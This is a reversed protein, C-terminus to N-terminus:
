TLRHRVWWLCLAALALAMAVFLAMEYWQFAWYRSAPQYTVLQRLGFHHACSAFLTQVSAGRPTGPPPVKLGPCAGVGPISATGKLSVQLGLQGRPGIGGNQGIVHGSKNITTQSLIWSGPQIVGAGPTPAPGNGVPLVLPSTVGLPTELRPRIWYTVALRAGLFGVITVAMAPLTRRILVGAFVGLMFAFAAYGIPTIGRVGFMAPSFRNINVRDFPSFWWSLILSLLGTVVMSILGVLGLKVALWRARPVSQSWSLKYSGTELERAVLPAGWFVGILAPAVLLVPPLAAQLFQDNKLFQLEASGCDKYKTCNAVTTDYLHLLHPGTLAATIAIAVLLGFAVAAPPRFQRWTLWIM